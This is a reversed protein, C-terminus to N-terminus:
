RAKRAIAQVPLRMVGSSGAAQDAAGTKSYPVGAQTNSGRVRLRTVFTM